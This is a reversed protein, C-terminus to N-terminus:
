TRQTPTESTVQPTQPIVPLPGVLKEYQSIKDDLWTRLVIAQAIDMSIGVELERLINASRGVRRQTDEPQLAGGEVKHFIKQPYPVRESYVGLHISGNPSLGGFVGDARVVRYYNSKIFDVEVQTPIATKKASKPM